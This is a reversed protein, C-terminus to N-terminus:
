KRSPHCLDRGGRGVTAWGQFVQWTSNARRTSSWCGRAVFNNRKSPERDSAFDDRHRYLTARKSHVTRLLIPQKSRSRSASMLDQAMDLAGAVRSSRTAIQAALACHLSQREPRYIM